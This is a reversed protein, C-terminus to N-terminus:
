DAGRSEAEQLRAQACSRVIGDPDALAERLLATGGGNLPMSEVAAIRVSLDPDHLVRALQNVADRGGESAIATVALTRAKPDQEALAASLDARITEQDGLRSEKLISLAEVRTAANGSKTLTLLREVEQQKVEENAMRQDTIERSYDQESASAALRFNRHGQSQAAREGRIKGIIWMEKPFPEPSQAIVPYRFVFDAEPPLLRELAQRVPLNAVSVTVLGDPPLAHHFRIGTQNTIGSLVRSWTAQKAEVSLLGNRFSVNVPKGDPLGPKLKAPPNNYRGEPAAGAALWGALLAPVTVSLLGAKVFARRKMSTGGM